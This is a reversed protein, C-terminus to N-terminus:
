RASTIPKTARWRFGSIASRPDAEFVKAYRAYLAMTQKELGMTIEMCKACRPCRLAM